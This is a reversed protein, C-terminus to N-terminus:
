RLTVDFQLEEDKALLHERRVIVRVVDGPRKDFMISKIEPFNAVKIGDLALLRDGVDIGSDRAAGKSGLQTIVVDKSSDDVSIGLKGADPLVTGGSSELIFDAIDPFEGFLKGNIAVASYKGGLRRNLAKPIGDGYMMHGLGALVVLKTQPNHKLYSAATDAM